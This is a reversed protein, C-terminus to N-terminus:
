SCTTLSRGRLKRLYVSVCATSVGWERAIEELYNASTDRNIQDLIMIDFLQLVRGNLKERIEEVMIEYTIDSFMTTMMSSVETPDVKDWSDVVVGEIQSEDVQTQDFVLMFTDVDTAGCHGCCIKPKRKTGNSKTYKITSIGCTACHVRVGEKINKRCTYLVSLVGKWCIFHLPNGVDLKAKAIARWCGELFASQIEEESVLVNRNIFRRLRGPMHEKEIIRLLKNTALEDGQQSAAILALTSIPATEGRRFEPLSGVDPAAVIAETAM